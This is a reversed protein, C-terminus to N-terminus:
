RETFKDTQVRGYGRRMAQVVQVSNAVYHAVLPAVVSGTYLFLMGLLIGALGAGIMGWRGQPSHLAGFFIGWGIVLMPAPLLIQFGGILLSRFLMEELLVVPIMALLVAVLERNTKPTIAHIVVASYYREGGHQLLWRTTWYFITALAVGWGLGILLQPRWQNLTWGLQAAPVGSLSGLVFTFVVMALRLGTEAPMLLLNRDPQWHRLLQATAFTGYSLFTLLLGTLAVFIWYTFSM